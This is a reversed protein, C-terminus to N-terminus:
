GQTALLLSAVQDENRPRPRPLPGKRPLRTTAATIAAAKDDLCKEREAETNLGYHLHAGVRGMAAMRCNAVDTVAWYPTMYTAHYWLAGSPKVTGELIRTWYRAAVLRALAYNRGAKPQLRYAHYSFQWTPKGADDYSVQNVNGCITKPFKGSAMRSFIVDARGNMDAVDYPAAENQIAEDLCNKEHMVNAEALKRSAEDAAARAVAIRLEALAVQVQAQYALTRITPTAALVVILAIFLPAMFDATWKLRRSECLRNLPNTLISVVNRM